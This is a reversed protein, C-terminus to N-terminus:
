ITAAVAEHVETGVRLARVTRERVDRDEIFFVSFTDGSPAGKTHIALENGLAIVESITAGKMNANGHWDGCMYNSWSEPAGLVDRVTKKDMGPGGILRGATADRRIQSHARFGRNTAPSSM